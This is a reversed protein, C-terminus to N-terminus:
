FGLINRNKFLPELERRIDPTAIAVVIDKGRLIFRGTAAFVEGNRFVMAFVASKPCNCECIRKGNVRSNELVKFEFVCANAQQLVVSVGVVGIFDALEKLIYNVGAVTANFGCDIMNMVPVIHAYDMKRTLAIVKKAGNRKALISSLINKEDNDLAGVFVDCNEIGAELLSNTQTSDAKIIMMKSGLEDMLAEAKRANKELLRINKGKQILKKALKAGMPTAGSIFCKQLKQPDPCILDVIKSVNEKHGAIFLQDDVAIQTEGNPINLKGNRLINAFRVSDLLEKQPLKKIKMKTLFSNEPIKLLTIIADPQSFYIKELENVKDLSGIAKEVCEELPSVILDIGLTKPSFDDEESFFEDNPVRCVTKAVGFHKAIQCSLVNVASDGSMALLIDCDKIGATKLTHPSSANGTVTMVDLRDLLKNLLASSKDIVVIDHKDELFTQALMMGMKGAGIIVIKM